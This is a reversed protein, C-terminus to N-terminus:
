QSCAMRKFGDIYYACSASPDESRSSSTEYCKKMNELMKGCKSDSMKYTSGGFYASFFSGFSPCAVAGATAGMVKAPNPPAFLFPTTIQFRKMDPHLLQGSSLNNMGKFPHGAVYTPHAHDIRLYCTLLLKTRHM